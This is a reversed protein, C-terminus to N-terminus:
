TLAAYPGSGNPPPLAALEKWNSVETHIGLMGAAMSYVDAATHGEKRFHQISTAGASKSLKEGAAETILAHHYFTSNTFRSGPLLTAVFLQALTSPWLDRGRVILDIGYLADDVLSSLQYAPFGDKRRIVFYQMDAPLTAKLVGNDYTNVTLERSDTILRWSVGPTDLPINKHLCTGPYVGNVSERAIQARSCNCAFVHPKLQELAQEYHRLRHLQSYSQQFESTSRPGETWPIALFRLTEFIDDIYKQDARDRDMDDIRLLTAAHHRDALDATIAFSLINGLHLFGSPTPAIRTKHFASAPSM